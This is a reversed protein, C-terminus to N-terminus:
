RGNPVAVAEGGARTFLAWLTEHDIDAPLLHVSGDAFSVLYLNGALRDLGAEPKESDIKLDEPKTWPVAKERAVEVTLITQSMGDTILRLKTGVNDSFM